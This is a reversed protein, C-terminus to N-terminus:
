GEYTEIIKKGRSAYMMLGFVVGGILWTWFIMGLGLVIGLGAGAKEADSTINQGTEGWGKIALVLWLLMLANFCWFLIQFLRGFIGRQRREIQVLQRAGKAKILGKL